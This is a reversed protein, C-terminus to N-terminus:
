FMLKAFIRAIGKNQHSNHVCLPGIMDKETGDYGALRNSIIEVIRHFRFVFEYM